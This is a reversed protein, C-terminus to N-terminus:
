GQGFPWQPDYWSAEGTAADGTAPLNVPGPGSVYREWTLKLDPYLQIFSQWAAQHARLLFTQGAWTAAERRAQAVEAKAANLQNRIATLEATLRENEKALANRRDQGVKLQELAENYLKRLTEPDDTDQALAPSTVLCLAAAVSLIAPWRAINM